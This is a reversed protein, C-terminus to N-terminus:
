RQKLKKNKMVDFYFDQYGLSMTKSSFREKIIERFVMGGPRDGKMRDIQRALDMVNGSRFFIGSDQSNRFIDNHQGIDSLIVPLACSMAELVANPLGESLSASIFFDGVKLYEHVKNTNGVFVVNDIERSYHKMKHLLPGDGIMILVSDKALDSLCFGGIVTEPSKRKIMSGVSLIIIKHEPIGLKSKLASRAEESLPSYVSMDVGNPIVKFGIKHKKMLEAITESVAVHHELVKLARCHWTAMAFGKMRGFKMLYDHFPYNRLTTVRSFGDLAMASLVDARFGQSHIVDFAERKVFNRLCKIGSVISEIRGLGLSEVRIGRKKFVSVLSREKEKSLTLICPEFNRKDLFDLLNLLQNVPGCAALTSLM